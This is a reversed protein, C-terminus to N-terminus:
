TDQEELAKIKPENVLGIIGTMQWDPALDRITSAGLHKNRLTHIAECTTIIHYPEEPGDECLRCQISDGQVENTGQKLVENHRKLHAHGCLYRVTCGADARNQKLLEDARSKLLRFDM